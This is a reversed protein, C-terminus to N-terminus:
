ECLHRLCELEGPSRNGLAGVDNSMPFPSLLASVFHVIAVAFEKKREELAGKDM